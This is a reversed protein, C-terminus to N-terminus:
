NFKEGSGLRRAEGVREWMARRGSGAPLIIITRTEIIRPTQAVQGNDGWRAVVLAAVVLTVVGLLAVSGIVVYPLHASTADLRAQSQARIVAAQAYARETASRNVNDAAILVFGITAILVIFYTLLKM